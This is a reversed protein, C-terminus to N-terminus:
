CKIIVKALAQNDSSLFDFIKIKKSTNKILFNCIGRKQFIKYLGGTLPPLIKKNIIKFFYEQNL